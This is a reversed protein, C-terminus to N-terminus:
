KVKKNKLRHIISKWYSTNIESIDKTAQNLLFISFPLFILNALWMGIVPNLAMEKVQKEGIMNLVHFIVFLLISILIPVGFGGKRIISGLSSGIIFLVICAFALSFKRHVEIKHRTIISQRYKMDKSNAEMTTQHSRIKNITLEYVEKESTNQKKNLITTDILIEKHNIINSRYQNLFYEQKKKINNKLSDMSKYLQSISMMSYHNKYIDENSKKFGFEELNFRIINKKFYIKQHAFKKKRNEDFIEIYSSGNFLTLELYKDDKSINMMGSDAIIVKDNSENSTHDYILIGSLRKDNNEKKEIKISYGDIEHYFENERINISPKKKQIDYLLIGNKLNAVPLINNSYILSLSSILIVFLFLPLMIKKLSIGSSRLAALENREGLNGFTMISAILMAIPLALPIFRAAAYYILQIIISTELGKGILEDVWKWLFQM